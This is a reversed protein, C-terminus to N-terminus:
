VRFQESPSWYILYNSLEYLQHALDPDSEHICRSAMVGFSLRDLDQQSPRRGGETWKKVYALQRAISLIAPDNDVAAMANVKRVSEELKESFEDFTNIM